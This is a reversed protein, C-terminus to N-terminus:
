ADTTISDREDTMVQILHATTFGGEFDWYPAGEWSLSCPGAPAEDFVMGIGPGGQKAGFDRRQLPQSALLDASTGDNKGVAYSM